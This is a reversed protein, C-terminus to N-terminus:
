KSLVLGLFVILAIWDVFAVLLLAVLNMLRNKMPFAVFTSHNNGYRKLLYGYRAIRFWDRRVRVPILINSGALYLVLFILLFGKNM